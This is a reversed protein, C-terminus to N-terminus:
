KIYKNDEENNFPPMIWFINCFILYYMTAFFILIYRYNYMFQYLFINVFTASSASYYAGDNNIDVDDVVVGNVVNKVMIIEPPVPSKIITLFKWLLLILLLLM